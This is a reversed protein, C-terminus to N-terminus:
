LLWLSSCFSEFHTITYFTFTNASPAHHCLSVIVKFHSNNKNASKQQLMRLNLFLNNSKPVQASLPWTSVVDWFCQTPLTVVLPSLSMKNHISHDVRRCKAESPPKIFDALLFINDLKYWGARVRFHATRLPFQQQGWFGWESSPFVQCVNGVTKWILAKM